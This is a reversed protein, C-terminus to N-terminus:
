SAARKLLSDIFGAGAGERGLCYFPREWATALGKRPPEVENAEFQGELALPSSYGQGLESDGHIRHSPRPLKRFAGSDSISGYLTHGGARRLPFPLLCPPPAVSSARLSELPGSESRARRARKWFQSGSNFGLVSARFQPKRGGASGSRSTRRESLLLNFPLFVM